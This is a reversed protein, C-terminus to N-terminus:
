FLIQSTCFEWFTYFITKALGLILKLTTKPKSQQQRLKLRYFHLLGKAADSLALGPSESRLHALSRNSYLVPAEPAADIAKKWTYHIHLFFDFSVKNYLAIAAEYNQKKFFDNAEAKLKEAVDNM